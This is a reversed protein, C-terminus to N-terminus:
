KSSAVLRDEGKAITKHENLYSGLASELSVGTDKEIDAKKWYKFYANGGNALPLPMAIRYTKGPQLASGGVSVSTIRKGATAGANYNVVLGSVQLFAVNRGPLQYLSNELAGRIQEGTLKVIAITDGKYELAKLVDPLGFGARTVTIASESFASAPVFAADVHASARIADAVLDGLGAQKVGIEKNTLEVDARYTDARPTGATLAALALVGILGLGM